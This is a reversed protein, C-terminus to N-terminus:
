FPHSVGFWFQVPTSDNVTQAVDFRLMTREIIGLWQVDVRLGLGVAVATNGLQHGNVYANGIDTFPALYVNRVSGIRYCFDWESNQIIPVRWELSGVWVASGQRQRPDFGRFQDGGGLAFFQGDDPIGAGGGLRYAFRTEKLWDAIPHDSGFTLWAPFSKVSSVQGYALNFSRQEGFIPIGYQYSLDLALGGEADWYPTLMNKHYHVGLGTRNNFPDAGPTPTYPNELPHNEVDGFLEVYEFPTGIISSTQTMVYRLYVVARSSAEGGDVTTLSKEVNMGVQWHPWPFHDWVADAGAVVNRDNSRYALFTGASVDQTHYVGARLGVLPTRDYWPDSTTALWAWPGFIFNWRDYANSVDVEDLNNYLPTFRFRCEPIWNNNEPHADLLIHDPDVTIQTPTSACTFTIRVHTKAPTLRVSSPLSVYEMDECEVHVGHDPIDLTKCEPDIPIRFTFGADNGLRVGLVTPEPFGGQEILDVTVQSQGASHEFRVLPGDRGNIAVNQVAWDCNGGGYLWQKFFDDWSRGTYLELERQYDCVRLIRYAYKRYLRRHFDLFATENGFRAEIMGIVKSGRDYTYALLNGLHGFKDIPQVTPYIDGHRQASLIGYNRLDDRHINPLWKLASPFELVENNKGLTTDALRHSFYTAMAEDMFTEAYGNTGVVNYWWMHCLEHQILYRPYNRAITPMDFMRDDILVLGGCENGNWGFCAEAITFQKYPYPGFWAEYVPIAEAATDVLIKALEAHKPFHYCRVKIGDTTTAETCEYNGSATLSFDRLICTELEYTVWGDNTRSESKIACPVALKKDCPLTVKASYVGAENYFPQHWPIFPLAHWGDNDVVALTPLWQALALVDDWYSWRGKKNPVKFDFVLEIALREGPQVPTVLPVRMACPNDDCYQFAVATPVADHLITQKMDLAPGEFSMAEKPSMRLIEAMKCLFGVQDGPPVYRAHVNFVLDSVAKGTTNTFTITEHVQVMRHAPDLKIDLDYVPLGPPPLLPAAPMTPQAGQLAPTFLLLVAVLTTVRRTM